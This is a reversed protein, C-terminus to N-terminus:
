QGLVSLVPEFSRELVAGDVNGGEDGLGVRGPAGEHRDRLVEDVRADRM